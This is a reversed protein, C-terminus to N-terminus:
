TQRFISVNVKKLFALDMNLKARSSLMCVDKCVVYVIHVKMRMYVFQLPCFFLKKWVVM